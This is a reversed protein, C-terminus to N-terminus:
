RRAEDDEAASVDSQLEGGHVGGVARLHGDEFVTWLDKAVLVVVDGRTGSFDQPVVADSDDGTGFYAADFVRGARSRRHEVFM